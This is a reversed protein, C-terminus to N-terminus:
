HKLKRSEDIGSKSQRKLTEATPIVGIDRLALRYSLSAPERDYLSINGYIVLASIIQGKILESDQLLL